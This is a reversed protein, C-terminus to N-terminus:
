KLICLIKEKIDTTLIEKESLRLLKYNKEKALVDKKKDRKIADPFSHWYEGDCEILLNEKPLYFDYFSREIKFESQYEIGLEILLNETIEEISTKGSHKRYCEVSCFRGVTSCKKYKFENGCKKCFRYEAKRWNGINKAKMIERIENGTKIAIGNNDLIIKGRLSNIKYRKCLTQLGCEYKLYDEIFQKEDIENTNSVSIMKSKCEPSCTFKNYKRAADQRVTTKNGCIFCLVDVQKSSNKKNNLKRKEIDKYPM